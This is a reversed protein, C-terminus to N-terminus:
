ASRGGEARKGPRIQEGDLHHTGRLWGEFAPRQPEPCREVYIRIERESLSPPESVGLSSISPQLRLVGDIGTDFALSDAGRAIGTM